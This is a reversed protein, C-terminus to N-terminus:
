TVVGEYYENIGAHNGSNTFEVMVTVLVNTTGVFGGESTVLGTLTMDASINNVGSTLTNFFTDQNSNYVEWDAGDIEAKVQALLDIEDQTLESLGTTEYSLGDSRRIPDILIMPKSIYNEVFHKFTFRFLGEKWCAIHVDKSWCSNDSRIKEIILAWQMILYSFDSTEAGLIDYGNDTSYTSAWSKVDEINQLGFFNDMLYSFTPIFVVDVGHTQCFDTCYSEDWDPEAGSYTPSFLYTMCTDNPFYSAVVKDVQEKAGSICAAHGPHHGGTEKRGFGIHCVTYGSVTTNLDEFNTVIQM